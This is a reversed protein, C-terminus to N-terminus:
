SRMRCAPIPDTLSGYGDAGMRGDGGIPSYEGVADGAGAPNGTMQISRIESRAGAIDLFAARGPM